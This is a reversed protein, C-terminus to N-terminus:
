ECQKLGKELDDGYSKAKVRADENTNLSQKLEMLMTDIIQFSGKWFFILPFLHTHTLM